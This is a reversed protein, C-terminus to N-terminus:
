LRIMRSFPIVILKALGRVGAFFCAVRLAADRLSRRFLHHFVVCFLLIKHDVKTIAPRFGGSISETNKKLEESRVKLEYSIHSSGKFAYHM